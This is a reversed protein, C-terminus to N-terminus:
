KNLNNSEQYCLGGYEFMDEDTPVNLM